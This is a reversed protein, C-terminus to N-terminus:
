SQVRTDFIFAMLEVVGGGVEVLVMLLEQFDIPEMAELDHM